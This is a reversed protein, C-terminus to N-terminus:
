GLAFRSPPPVRGAVPSPLRFVFSDEKTLPRGAKLDASAGPATATVYWVVDAGAALGGLHIGQAVVTRGAAASM